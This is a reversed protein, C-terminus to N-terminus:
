AGSEDGVYFKRVRPSNGLGIQVMSSNTGGMSAVEDVPLEPSTLTVTANSLMKKDTFPLGTNMERTDGDRALQNGQEDTVFTDGDKLRHSGQQTLEERRAEVQPRISELDVTTMDMSMAGLIPIDVNHLGLQPDSLRLSGNIVNQGDVRKGGMARPLGDAYGAPITGLLTKQEAEYQRSYGPAEGPHLNRVEALPVTVTFPQKYTGKGDGFLEQGHIAGGIRVMDYQYDKIHLASSAALSGKAGPYEALIRKFEDHQKEMSESPAREAKAAPDRAEANGDEVETAEGATALHSMVYKIDIHKLADSGHAVKARDEPAIGARNMGTDFQLIAPLKKGQQRGLENWEEVQDLSNLVPTINHDLFQKATGPLPGGLVLVTSDKNVEARMKLAEDLTAVFFKNCGEKELAKAMEPGGLGYADAKLVVSTDVGPKLQSLVERYNSRVTGLDIKMAVTAGVKHAAEDAARAAQQASAQAMGRLATDLEKAQPGTTARPASATGNSQAFRANVGFTTSGIVAPSRRVTTQDDTVLNTPLLGRTSSLAGLVGANPGPVPVLKAAAPNAPASEHSPGLLAAASSPGADSSIPNM